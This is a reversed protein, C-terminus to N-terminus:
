PLPDLHGAYTRTAQEKFYGGDDDASLSSRVNGNIPTPNTTGDGQADCACTTGSAGGGFAFGIVGVGVYRARLADSGLLTEVLNDQYHGWSNNSARMVTNGLPIQWELVRLGSGKVFHDLFLLNRDHDAAQWWHGPQGNIIQKFGADRDDYEATTLDFNAGLAKYFAAAQDGLAAVTANDPKELLIDHNTGWVSLHYALRVNPAYLDRLKVVSQALGRANNAAGALEPMGSAGVQVPVASPDANRQEIYGWLDPEVQLVVMDPGASRQLALKIDEFWSRMTSANALNSFDSDPEPLTNGPTSQLLQYYSFMPTFGAAKSETIYRSVFSANADWTTWGSGTNVGGALYQYRLTLQTSARLAPAGGPSDALGLTLARPWGLPLAPLTSVPVTGDPNLVTINWFVGENEMWTAGEVLPRLYLQYSGPATPAVLGFQFWAVQGPGVYAAPQVAIRNYRPWGTVPSGLQGDGGLPSAADQGPQPGWTGLYAAQGMRGAVWGNSGTNLYAVTATARDGPCLQMYGSQGAWRAHFGPIGGRPATPPPIGPGTSASCTVAPQTIQPAGVSSTSVNEVGLVGVVLGVQLLLSLLLSLGSM